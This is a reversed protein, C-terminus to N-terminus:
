VCVCVRRRQSPLRNSNIPDAFWLTTQTGFLDFFCFCTGLRVHTPQRSTRELRDSIRM